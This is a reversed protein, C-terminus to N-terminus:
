NKKKNGCKLPKAREKGNVNMEACYNEEEDKKKQYKNEEKEKWKVFEKSRNKREKKQKKKKIEHIFRQTFSSFSELTIVKIYKKKYKIIIKRSSLSFSIEIHHHSPHKQSIFRLQFAFSSYIKINEEIM